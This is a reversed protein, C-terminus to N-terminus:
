KLVYLRGLPVRDVPDCSCLEGDATVRYTEPDVEIAPLADNHLMDRKTLARTNRTAVLRTHLSWRGAVDADIAAQTTFLVSLEAAARGYAGWQPRYLLPECTMLSANSEGM